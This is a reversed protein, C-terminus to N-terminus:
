RYSLPFDTTQLWLCKNHLSLTTCNSFSINSHKSLIPKSCIKLVIPLIEDGCSDKKSPKETVIEYDTVLPITYVFANIRQKLIKHGDQVHSGASSDQRIMHKCLKHKNAYQITALIDPNLVTVACSLSLSHQKGNLLSVRHNATGLFTERLGM